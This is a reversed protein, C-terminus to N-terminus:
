VADKCLVSQVESAWEGLKGQSKYPLTFQRIFTKSPSHEDFCFVFHIEEAIEECCIEDSLLYFQWSFNRLIRRESDVKFQLDRWEHIFNVSVLTTRFALSPQLGSQLTIIGM